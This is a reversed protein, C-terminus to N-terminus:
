DSKHTEDRGKMLDSIMKIIADQLIPMCEVCVDIRVKRNPSSSYGSHIGLVSPKRGCFDCPNTSQNEM